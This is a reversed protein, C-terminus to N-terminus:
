ITCGILLFETVFGRERFDRNKTKILRTKISDFGVKVEATCSVNRVKIELTFDSNSGSLDQQISFCTEPSM